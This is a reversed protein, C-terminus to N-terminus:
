KTDGSSQRVFERIIRQALLPANGAARNNLIINIRVNSEVAERMLRATQEVMAPQMMEEVIRDFPFARAYADEYRVGIPTMLRVVAEGGSTLFRNGARAFQAKLGPLWTWHSFVQGAGHKELVDRVAQCCYSETRLEVHRGVGSPIAGFFADLGAALEEASVRESQRQYEQEFIIGKLNAGLLEVAPQYFQRTFPESALYNENPVYDKGRKLKQASFMQPAKVFVSDEPGLHAAYQSLTNHCATPAGNELLAAYFTYDIELTKFHQFYERVSDVPLVEERFGCKGVRKVRSTIRDKYLEEAYIQGLWGKYRDSATGIRILPHVNRFFLKESGQLTEPGTLGDADM